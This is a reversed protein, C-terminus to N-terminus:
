HVRGATAAHEPTESVLRWVSYPQAGAHYEVAAARQLRKSRRIVIRSGCATAEHEPTDSYPQRV